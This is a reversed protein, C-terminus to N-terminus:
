AASTASRARRVEARRAHLQRVGAVRDRQLGQDPLGVQLRGASGVDRREGALVDLQLFEDYSRRQIEILNPIDIIKRIKGFNRRLRVITRSRRVSMGDSRAIARNSQVVVVEARRHRGGGRDEEEDERGRGQHRRGQRAEARRRGPGQGGQPRSRHARPRGQHGPDEQRRLRDPRRSSTRRAEAAARPAPAPRRVLAMVPAAAPQRRLRGEPLRRAGAGQAADSSMIKDGLDKVENSWDRASESM